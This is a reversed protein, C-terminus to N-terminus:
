ITEYRVERVCLLKNFEIERLRRKQERVFRKFDETFYFIKYCFIKIPKM